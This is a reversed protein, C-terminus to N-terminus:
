HSRFRVALVPREQAFGRVIEYASQRTEPPVARDLQRRGFDLADHATSRARAAADNIAM